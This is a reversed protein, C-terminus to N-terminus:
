YDRITEGKLRAATRRLFARLRDNIVVIFVKRYYGEPCTIPRVGHWSNNQRQFLFSYNGVSQGSYIHDFQHFEPASNRQFRGSDDLVLTEGGWTPNWNELTNFYFIHSGLKRNADCHPSVSCGQPAYHWHFSLKFQGRGFMRHLFQCYRKDKLEEVFEHWAKSVNLDGRYELAFRNHPKQGHSRQIGFLPTFEEVAPLTELLRRYGTETLLDAPNLWPYPKTQRFKAADLADLRQYDLYNM